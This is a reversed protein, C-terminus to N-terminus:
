FKMLVEMQMWGYSDANAKYYNGPHFGEYLVKGTVNKELKFSFKGIFLDGRTTGTGGPFTGTSKQPATLHHYDFSFELGPVIDVATKVFLSTYNTWYGVGREKVLAYVYSDSWKPQRAYIPDWGEYKDTTPDDGSLYLGGVTFSRPFLRPWHTAYETYAYGGCAFQDHGGRRGFQMAGEGTITFHSDLPAKVRAGFCNLDIRPFSQYWKAQKRILYAQTNVKKIFGNYYAMFALESQDELSKFRNSEYIVPLLGDWRPQYATVLTLVGKPAITLDARAANFYVSRSGDLPTGDSVVFGEGFEINQRGFIVNIPRHALSDIRFYLQDVFLQDFDTKKSEPVFYYRMEDTLKVAAEVKAKPYWQLMLSNRDRVYSTGAASDATMWTVNDNTEIRVRHSYSLRFKSAAKATEAANSSSLGAAALLSAVLSTTLMKRVIRM